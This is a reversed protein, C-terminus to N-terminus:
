GDFRRRIEFVAGCGSKACRATMTTQDSSKRDDMDKLALVADLVAACGEICFGPPTIEKFVFLQGRKCNAPCIKQGSGQVVFVEVVNTGSIRDASSSPPASTPQGTLKGEDTLIVDRGANMAQNALKDAQANKERPIHRIKWNEFGELLQQSKQYLLKLQPNKVRYTGNIQHVLLESDSYINIANARNLALLELAKILASYEAQNNTKQGLFFGGAFIIKDNPNYILVGSAAPGPNGRSGGDIYAKWAM